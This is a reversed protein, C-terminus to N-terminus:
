RSNRSSWSTAALAGGRAHARAAAIGGAHPRRESSRARAPGVAVNVFRAVRGDDYEDFDRSRLERDPRRRRNRWRAGAGGAAARARRGGPRGTRHARARQPQPRRREPVFIMGGPLDRALMQADHGAGSPLRRVSIASSGRPASSWTSWRPISSWRSSARWRHAHSLEVGEDRARRTPSRMCGSSPRGAAASRRHQAPRRHLGGPQRHRQGPEPPCSCRASPRSRTAAWSAHRDRAFLQRDACAVYGPMTACACRRPAPTTPCAGCPSSPGRSARCAKSWASRVGEPRAGPGARHAARRLRSWRSAAGAGRRIASADHLEDGVSEGDIGLHGAGRELPLGGAYVLSGMMDPQFRAGEENTFFAVALPRRTTIGAENCRRRGSGSRGARRLQRRLPRRHARHRHALREM